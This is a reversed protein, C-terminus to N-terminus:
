ATHNQLISIAQGVPVEFSVGNNYEAFTINLVRREDRKAAGFGTSKNTISMIQPHADKYQEKLAELDDGTVNGNGSKRARNAAKMLEPFCGDTNWVPHGANSIRNLLVSQVLEHQEKNSLNKM